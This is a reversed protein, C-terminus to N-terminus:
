PDWCCFPALRLVGALVLGLIPLSEQLGHVHTPPIIAAMKAFLRGFSLILQINSGLALKLDDTQNPLFMQTLLFVESCFKSIDKKSKTNDGFFIFMTGLM